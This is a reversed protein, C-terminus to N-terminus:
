FFQSSINQYICLKSDTFLASHFLINILLHSFYKSGPWKPSYNFLCCEPILLKLKKGDVRDQGSLLATFITGLYLLRVIIIYKIWPISIFKVGLRVLLGRCSDDSYQPKRGSIRDILENSDKLTIILRPNRQSKTTKVILILHYNKSEPMVWSCVATTVECGSVPVPDNRTHSKAQQVFLRDINIVHIHTIDLMLASFWQM